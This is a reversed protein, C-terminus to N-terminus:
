SYNIQLSIYDCYAATTTDSTLLGYEIKKLGERTWPQLTEPDIQYLNTIPFYDENNIEVSDNIFYNISDKRIFDSIECTEGLETSCFAIPKIAKISEFYFEDKIYFNFSIKRRDLANLSTGDGHTLVDQVGGHWQSYYRVSIPPLCIVNGSGAFSDNRLEIDDISFAYDTDHGTEDDSNGFMIKSIYANDSLVFFIGLSTDNIKIETTGNSVSNVEVRYWTEQEFIGSFSTVIGGSISDTTSFGYVILNGLQNVRLSMKIYNNVDKVAFFETSDAPLKKFFCYFKSYVRNRNMLIQRGNSIEGFTLGGYGDGYNSSVCLSYNGCHVDDNEDLSGIKPTGFGELFENITGTEFGTFNLTAM